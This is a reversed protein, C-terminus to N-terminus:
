LALCGLTSEHEVREATVLSLLFCQRLKVLYKRSLEAM